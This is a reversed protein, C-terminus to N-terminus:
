RFETIGNRHEEFHGTHLWVNPAVSFKSAMFNVQLSPRHSLIHFLWTNARRLPILLSIIMVPNKELNCRPSSIGSKLLKISSRVSVVFTQRMM